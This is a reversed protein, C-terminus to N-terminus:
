NAISLPIEHLRRPPSPKTAPGGMAPGGLVATLFGFGLALFDWTPALFVFGLVLFDFGLVLFELNRPVFDLNM